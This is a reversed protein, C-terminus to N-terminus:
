ARGTQPGARRRTQGPTLMEGGSMTAVDTRALTARVTPTIALWPSAIDVRIGSGLDYAPPMGRLLCLAPLPVTDAAATFGTIA